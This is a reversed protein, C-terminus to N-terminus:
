AKFATENSGFTIGATSRAVQAGSNKFEGGLVM